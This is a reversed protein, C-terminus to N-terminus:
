YRLPEIRRDWRLNNFQFLPQFFGVSAPNATYGVTERQFNDIRGLTSEFFVRGGTAGVNQSLALRLNSNARSLSRIEFSGDPQVIPEYSRTLDPLVGELSIQPLYNSRFTRFRWYTGTLTREARVSAPSQAQALEVVAELTLPRPVDGSQAAAALSFCLLLPSLLRLPSTVPTTEPLVRTM